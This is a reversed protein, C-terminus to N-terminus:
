LVEQEPPFLFSQTKETPFKFLTPQNGVKFGYRDDTISSFIEEVPPLCQRLLSVVPNRKYLGGFEMIYPMSLQKMYSYAQSM